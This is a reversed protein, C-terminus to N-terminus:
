FPSSRDINSMVKIDEMKSSILQNNIPDKGWTEIGGIPVNLTAISSGDMSIKKSPRLWNTFQKESLKAVFEDLILTM